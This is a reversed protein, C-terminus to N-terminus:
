QNAGQASAAKPASTVPYGRGSNPAVIAEGIIRDLRSALADAKANDTSAALM